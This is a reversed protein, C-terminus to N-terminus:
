RARSARFRAHLPRLYKKELPQFINNFGLGFRSRMLLLRVAIRAAIDGRPIQRLIDQWFVLEVQSLSEVTLLQSLSPRRTFTPKVDGTAAYLGMATRVCKECVECNIQNGAGKSARCISLMSLAEPVAALYAIKDVRRTNAGGGAVRFQSSGLLHTMYQNNGWPMIELDEGFTFDAAINVGEHSASLLQGIAALGLQTDLEYQVCFDKWNTTCVLFPLDLARAVTAVRSELTPFYKTDTLAYDFGHVLFVSGPTCTDRGADGSRNAFISFMSDVGGSFPFTWTRSTPRPETETEKDASVKAAKYRDPRWQAWIQTYREAGALLQSDVAGRVHLPCGRAM